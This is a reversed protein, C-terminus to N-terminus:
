VTLKFAKFTKCNYTKWRVFNYGKWVENGNELHFLGPFSTGEPKNRLSIGRAFGKAFKM